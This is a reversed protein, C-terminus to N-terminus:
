KSFFLNAQKKVILEEEKELDEKTKRVEQKEGKRKSSKSPYLLNVSLDETNM